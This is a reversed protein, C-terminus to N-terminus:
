GGARIGEVDLGFSIDYKKNMVMYQLQLYLSAEEGGFLQLTYFFLFLSSPSTTTCSKGRELLDKLSM